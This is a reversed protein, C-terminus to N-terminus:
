CIFVNMSKDLTNISLNTKVTRLAENLWNVCSDQEAKRYTLCTKDHIVKLSAIIFIKLHCYGRSQGCEFKRDSGFKIPDGAPSILLNGSFKMLITEATKSDMSFMRVSKKM